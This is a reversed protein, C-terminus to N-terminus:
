QTVYFHSKTENIKINWKQLWSHLINLYEQLHSSARLVDKHCTLIVTDDAFTGFTVNPAQPLDSAFLLYLLPGLVSGQPVGSNIPFLASFEGKVRTRFQRDSIYSKLLPFLAPLHHKIKYLLGPHWVRDFTQSVDLFVSTCYEKNNLAKLITHTIRHCQQITSHATHFGFQHHPIWDSITFDPDIRPLILKELLKAIIPLLSIPLCSKVQQPDKGPKPIVILTIEAINLKHPWYHHRLIANYLHTSARRQPAIGQANQSNNLLARRHKTFATTPIM